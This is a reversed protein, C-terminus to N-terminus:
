WSIVMVKYDDYPLYYLSYTIKIKYGLSKMCNEIKKIIYYQNSRFIEQDVNLLTYITNFSIEICDNTKYYDDIKEAIHDFVSNFDFDTLVQDIFKEKDYRIVNAPKLLAM